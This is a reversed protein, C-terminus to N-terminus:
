QQMNMTWVGICLLCMWLQVAEVFRRSYPGSNEKDRSCAFCPLLVAQLRNCVQQVAWIHQGKVARLGSRLYLRYYTHYPGCTRGAQQSKEERSIYIGATWQKSSGWLDEGWMRQLLDEIPQECELTLADFGQSTEREASVGRQQLEYERKRWV